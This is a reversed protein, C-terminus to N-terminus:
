RSRTCRPLDLGTTGQGQHAESSPEEAMVERLTPPVARRESSGNTAETSGSRGTGQPLPGVRGRFEAESSSPLPWVPPPSLQALLNLERRLPLTSREVPKPALAHSRTTPPATTLPNPRNSGEGAKRFLAPDPQFRKFCMRTAHHPSGCVGCQGERHRHPCQVWSHGSKGCVFCPTTGQGIKMVRGGNTVTGFALAVNWQEDTMTIGEDESEDQKHQHDEEPESPPGGSQVRAQRLKPQHHRPRPNLNAWSRFTPKNEEESVHNRVLDRWQAPNIGQYNQAADVARLKKLLEEGFPRSAMVLADKPDVPHYADLNAVQQFYDDLNGEYRLEMWAQLDSTTISSPVMEHRLWEVLQDFALTLQPRLGKQSLWWQKAKDDLTGLALWGQTATNCIGNMTFHHRLANRWDIFDKASDKGTCRHVTKASLAKTLASLLHQSGGREQHLDHLKYLESKSPPSTSLSELPTGQGVRSPHAQSPLGDRDRRNKKSVLKSRTGGERRYHGPYLPEGRKIVIYPLSDRKRKSSSSSHSEPESPSSSSSSSSSTGESNSSSSAPSSSPPSSRRTTRRIRRSRSSEDESDSRRRRERRRKQHPKRALSNKNPFRRYTSKVNKEEKVIPDKIRPEHKM